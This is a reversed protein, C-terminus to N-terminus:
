TQRWSEPLLRGLWALVDARYAGEIAADFRNALEIFEQGWGSSVSVEQIPGTPLFLLEINSRKPMDGSEIRAIIGDIERLAAPADEWSSWAYDNGPCALFERAERLVDILRQPKSNM